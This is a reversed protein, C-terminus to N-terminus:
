RGGGDRLWGLRNSTAILWFDFGGMLGIETGHGKLINM